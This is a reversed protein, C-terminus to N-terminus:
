SHCLHNQEKLFDNIANKDFAGTKSNLKKDTAILRTHCNPHYPPFGEGDATAQVIGKQEITSPTIPKLGAEFQQPEMSSLKQVAEYAVGVPILKGNMYVCIAAEPSPNYAQAYEIGAEHLQGINAWNRMRQVSTTIIRRAAYNEIKILKERLLSQFEALVNDTTQEFLGEGKELFQERLFSHIASTTNSNNIFKSLYFRDLNKIFALTDTDVTSFSFITDPKTPFANIDKLRYFEYIRKTDTEIAKQADASRFAEPYRELLFNYTRESYQTEDAFDSFNSQKIFRVIDDIAAARQAALYSRINKLYSNAFKEIRSRVAEENVALAAKQATSLAKASLRISNRRFVYKNQESDYKLRVTRKKGLPRRSFLAPANGDSNNLLEPAFWEDYGAEQAGTDPDIMGTQVKKIIDNNKIQEAQAESQPDRAPNDNFSITVDDVPIGALLLDLNYTREIRRKALRRYNNADRVMFMYMVNACTETTHYSRGIISSDVGIGSAVQEDNMVMLDKAGRAEGTVNFHELTQDDYKVMLGKFFNKRLADNIQQAYNYVKKNYEQDTENAVRPPKKLSLATLGLVGFKKFVFDLNDHIDHQRLVPEIAAVMPPKAYPSNEIVQYAYYHYTAPNLELLDGAATKQYPIYGGDELKFRIKRVPVIVVRKVGKRDERIEDESSIAGTVAIQYLYHNILGDIGGSRRYLASAQKNLREQAMEVVRDSAADIILNHGNNAMAIWNKVAHSMDPNIIAVKILFELYDTPIVPSIGSYFDLFGGMNTLINVAEEKSSRGNTPLPTNAPINNKNFFWKM